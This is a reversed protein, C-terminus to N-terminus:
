ANRAKKDPLGVVFSCAALLGNVSLASQRFPYIGLGQYLYPGSLVRGESVSWRLSKIIETPLFQLAALLPCCKIRKMLLVVSVTTRCVCSPLRIATICPKVFLPRHHAM